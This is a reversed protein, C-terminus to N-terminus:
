SFGRSGTFAPSEYDVTFFDEFRPMVEALLALHAPHQQYAHMEEVSEFTEVLAIDYARPSDVVNIGVEISLLEPIQGALVAIRDRTAAVNAPSRDKLKFLVIHTLM